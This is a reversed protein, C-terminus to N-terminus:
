KRTSYVGGSLSRMFDATLNEKYATINYQVAANGTYGVAGVLGLIPHTLSLAGLGVFTIGVQRRKQTVTNETLEGVYQNIKTAGTLGAAMVKRFGLGGTTAKEEETKVQTPKKIQTKQYAPSTPKAATGVNNYNVNINYDQM